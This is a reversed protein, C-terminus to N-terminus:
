AAYFGLGKQVNTIMNIHGTNYSPWISFLVHSMIAPQCLGMCEESCALWLWGNCAGQADMGFLYGAVLMNLFGKSERVADKQEKTEVKASGKVFLDANCKTAKTCVCCRMFRRDETVLQKILEVNDSRIVTQVADLLIQIALGLCGAPTRQGSMAQIVTPDFGHPNIIFPMPSRWTISKGRSISAKDSDVNRRANWDDVDVIVNALAQRLALDRSGVCVTNRHENLDQTRCATSCYRVMLCGQCLTHKLQTLKKSCRGNACDYSLVALRKQRELSGVHEVVALREYSEELLRSFPDEPGLKCKAYFAALDFKVANHVTYHQFSMISKVFKYQPSDNLSSVAAPKDKEMKKETPRISPDFFVSPQKKPHRGSLRGEKTVQHSFHAQTKIKGLLTSGRIIKPFTIQCRKLKSYHCM